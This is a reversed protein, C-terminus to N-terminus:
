DIQHSITWETHLEGSAELRNASDVASQYEGYEEPSYRVVGNAEDWFVVDYFHDHTRVQYNRTLTM